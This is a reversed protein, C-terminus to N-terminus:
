SWIEELEIEREQERFHYLVRVDVLQVRSAHTLMTDVNRSSPQFDVDVDLLHRIASIVAPNGSDAAM